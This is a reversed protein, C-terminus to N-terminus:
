LYLSGNRQAKKVAYVDAMPRQQFPGLLPRGLDPGHGRHEAEVHVRVIQNEAPLRRQDVAGDAPLVDDAPNVANVVHDKEM